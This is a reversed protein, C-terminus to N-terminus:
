DETFPVRNEILWSRAIEKLAEARYSYWSERLELRDITQRFMRFAGSGHIAAWLEARAGEEQSNSFRRMIEWEHVDHRSPLHIPDAGELAQRIELISEQQWDPLDALEMEAGDEVYAEENETIVIVELTNRDLMCEWEEPYEMADVIESLRVTEKKTM